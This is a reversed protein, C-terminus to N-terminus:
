IGMSGHGYFRMSPTDRQSCRESLQHCKRYDRRRPNSSFRRDNGGPKGIHKDSRQVQIEGKHTHAIRFSTGCDFDRPPVCPFCEGFPESSLLAAEALKRTLFDNSVKAARLWAAPNDNRNADIGLSAQDSRCASAGVKGALNILQQKGHSGIVCRCGKLVCAQAVFEVTLHRFETLGAVFELHRHRFPSGIQLPAFGIESFRLSYAV